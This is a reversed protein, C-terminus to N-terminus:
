DLQFRMDTLARAQQGIRYHHGIIECCDCFYGNVAHNAFNWHFFNVFREFMRQTQLIDFNVQTVIGKIKIAYRHLGFGLWRLCSLLFQCSRAWSLHPLYPCVSSRISLATVM